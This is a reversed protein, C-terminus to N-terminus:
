PRPEWLQAPYQGAAILAAISSRTHALDQRYTVGFWQEGTRLVKVRAKGEAVLDGVVEPLYFEARDLDERNERLFREFREELEGFVSPTFGWMNMSVITGKPLTVWRRGDQSSRVVDGVREVRMSERIEVLNQSGDVACVGRSVHGHDTLTNELRYGIMGYDHRGNGDQAGMLFRQLIGFSSRGYFDDANIVGLPSDVASKCCLIAHGTGWPKQRSRPVEVGAPVDRLSQRVYAVQCRGEISRGVRDRFVQELEPRIVFVVQEFGAALADYVSYDIILEGSPGVAEMQKLGGYRSGMGAAMVVLALRPEQDENGVMVM